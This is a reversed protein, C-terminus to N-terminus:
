QLNHKTLCSIMGRTEFGLLGAFWFIFLTPWFLILHTFFVLNGQQLKNQKYESQQVIQKGKYPPFSVSGLSFSLFLTLAGTNTHTKINNCM